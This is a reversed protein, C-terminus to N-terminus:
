IFVLIISAFPSRSHYELCADNSLANRPAPLLADFFKEFSFHFFINVVPSTLSLTFFSDSLLALGFSPLVKFVTYHCVVVLWAIRLTIKHAL